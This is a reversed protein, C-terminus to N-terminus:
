SSVDPSERGPHSSAVSIQGKPSRERRLASLVPGAMITAAPAAAMAFLEVARAECTAGEDTDYWGFGSSPLCHLPHACNTAGPLQLTTEPAILGSPQHVRNAAM